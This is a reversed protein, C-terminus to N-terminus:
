NSTAHKKRSKEDLKEVYFEHLFFFFIFIFNMSLFQM